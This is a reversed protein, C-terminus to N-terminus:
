KYVIYSIEDGTGSCIFYLLNLNNVYFPESQGSTLPFGSTLDTTGDGATVTSVGVWVTGTNTSGAKLVAYICGVDPMQTASTAGGVEGTAIAASSLATFVPSSM